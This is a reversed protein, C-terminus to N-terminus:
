EKETSQEENKEKIVSLIASLYKQYIYGAIDELPVDKIKESDLGDVYYDVIAKRLAYVNNMYIAQYPTEEKKTWISDIGDDLKIVAKKINEKTTKM